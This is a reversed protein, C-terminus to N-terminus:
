GGRDVGATGGLRHVAVREFRETEAVHDWREVQCHRTESDPGAATDAQGGRVSGAAVRIVNVSNGAESRVRRSVATGAQVAWVPHPLAPWRERLPLVFPLHIHGGVILDAGAASWRQVAAAHGHLLNHRDQPRTVAVPQHVVIVRWQSPRAQRGAELQRAVRSIQEASVEGDAHRWWRTTNLGLLQLDATEFQPELEHGFARRHNRYPFFLRAALNFLPIDHNGPIVLEAPMQLRDVFARARGFQSRRARQTIDGSMLLLDPRLEIALRELARVVAPRECGFHPDSVQLVVTM